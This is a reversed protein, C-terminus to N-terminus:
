PVRNKIRHCEEVGFISGVMMELDNNSMLKQIIYIKGLISIFIYLLWWGPIESLMILV